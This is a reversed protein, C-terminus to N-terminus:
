KEENLNMPMIGIVWDDAYTQAYYESNFFMTDIIKGRICKLLEYKDKEVFSITASRDAYKGHGFFESLLKKNTM